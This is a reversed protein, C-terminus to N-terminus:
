GTRVVPEPEADTVTFTQSTYDVTVVDTEACFANVNYVGPPANTQITLTGSWRGEADVPIREVALLDDRALTTVNVLVLRQNCGAGRVLLRTGPPGLTPSVDFPPRPPATAPTTDPPATCPPVTAATSSTSEGSTTVATTPASDCPQQGSDVTTTAAGSRWELQSAAVAALTAILSLVLLSRGLM